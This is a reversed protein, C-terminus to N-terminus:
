LMTVQSAFPSRRLEVMETRNNSTLSIPVGRIGDYANIHMLLQDDRVAVPKSDLGKLEAKM